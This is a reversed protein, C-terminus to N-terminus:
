ELRAKAELKEDGDSLSGSKIGASSLTDIGIYRYKDEENPETFTKELEGSGVMTDLVFAIFGNEPDSWEGRMKNKGDSPDKFFIGNKRYRACIARVEDRKVKGKLAEAIKNSNTSQVRAMAVLLVAAANWGPTGPEFDSAMVELLGDLTGLKTEVEVSKIFNELALRILSKYAALSSPKLPNKRITNCRQVLDDLDITRVDAAEEITMVALSKKVANLRNRWREMDSYYKQAKVMEECNDLLRAVSFDFKKM